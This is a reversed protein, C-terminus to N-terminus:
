KEFPKATLVSAVVYSYNSDYNRNVKFQKRCKRSQMKKSTEMVCIDKIEETEGNKKILFNRSFYFTSLCM